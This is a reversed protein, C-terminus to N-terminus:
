QSTPGGEASSASPRPALWGMVRDIVELDGPLDFHRVGGVLAVSTPNLIRRDTGSSPRVILDGIMSGIPHTPDATATGAVFHHRIGSPLAHNGVTNRLLADPDLDRGDEEAVAGFRLDKIGGSRANLFDALPRTVSAMSLAWSAANVLKELPAGRHPTGLTVVDDVSDIWRHRKAVAALCAARIVLGGMSHGVLSISELPVPWHERVDEFLDALQAGNASTRLGTNYRIPLPTLAPHEGLTRFLGADAATGNWCRETEMLGHVLVVVRGTANPLARGLGADIRVAAGNGDRVSMPIGLHDSRVGLTDGWLGNVISQASEVAPSGDDVRTDVACGIAAGGIRVSAYAANAVSDHVRQVPRAPSGVATFWRRAIERHMGEVPAAVRETVLAIASGALM